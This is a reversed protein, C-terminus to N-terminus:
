GTRSEFWQQHSCFIKDASIAYRSRAIDLFKKLADATERSRNRHLLGRTRPNVSSDSKLVYEVEGSSNLQISLISLKIGKQALKLAPM